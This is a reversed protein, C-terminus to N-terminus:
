LELAQLEVEATSLWKAQEATLKSEDRLKRLSTVQRRCAALRAKPAADSSECLKQDQALRQELNQTPSDLIETEGSLNYDRITIPLLFLLALVAAVAVMPRTLDWGPFVGEFWATIRTRVASLGTAAVSQRQSAARARAFIKDFEDALVRQDGHDEDVESLLDADRMTAIDEGLADALNHLADRDRNGDM